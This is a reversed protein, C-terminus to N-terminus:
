KAFRRDVYHYTSEDAVWMELEGTYGDLEYPIVFHTWDQADPRGAFFRLDARAAPEGPAPLKSEFPDRGASLVIMGEKPPPKVAGDTTVAPDLTYSGRHMFSVRLRRAARDAEVAVIGRVGVATQREHLFLLAGTPEPSKPFAWRRYARWVAPVHAAVPSGADAAGDGAPPLAAAFYAGGKGLLGAAKNPNEEYVVLGKAPVYDAADRQVRLEELRKMFRPGYVVGLGVAAALITLWVLRGLMNRRQRPPPALTSYPGSAAAAEALQEDPTPAREVPQPLPLAATVGDGNSGGHSTPEATDDIRESM